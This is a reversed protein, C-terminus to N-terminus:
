IYIEKNKCIPSTLIQLVLPNISYSNVKDCFHSIILTFLRSLSKSKTFFIINSNYEDRDVNLFDIKQVRKPLIYESFIDYSLKEDLNYLLINYNSLNKNTIFEVNSGYEKNIDNDPINYLIFKQIINKMM